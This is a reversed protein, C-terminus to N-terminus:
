KMLQNNCFPRELTGALTKRWFDGRWPFSFSETGFTVQTENNMTLRYTIM